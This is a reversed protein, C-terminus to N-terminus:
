GRPPCPDNGHSDKESIKGDKNHIVFETHQNQSIERGKDIAQQKTDTHISARESGGKKVNWGGDPDHVVHHSKSSM